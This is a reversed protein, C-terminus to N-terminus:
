KGRQKWVQILQNLQLKSCYKQWQNDSLRHDWFAQAGLAQFIQVSRQLDVENSDVFSGASVVPEQLDLGCLLLGDFTPALNETTTGALNMEVNITLSNSNTTTSSSMASSQRNFYVVDGANATIISDTSVTVSATPQFSITGQRIYLIANDANELLWQSRSPFSEDCRHRNYGTLHFIGLSSGAIHNNPGEIMTTTDTTSTTSTTATMIPSSSSNPESQIVGGSIVKINLKQDIDEYIANQIMERSLLQVFPADLKRNQPLNVWIQYLEINKWPFWSDKPLTWMEEHIIGQGARMWQVDGDGYQMAFGNSDRHSLGGKLCYTVTDFGAHPHAPFGEPLLLRTLYRFPDLSSFSHRHHVLLLFPSVDQETLGIPIVRGGIQELLQTALPKLGSWELLQAIVGSWIPWVPLKVPKNISIKANSIPRTDTSLRKISLLSNSCRNLSELCILSILFISSVFLSRM